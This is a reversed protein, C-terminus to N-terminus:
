SYPPYVFTYICIYLPPTFTSIHIKTVITTVLSSHNYRFPSITHIIASSLLRVNQLYNPQRTMSLGWQRPDVDDSRYYALVRQIAAAAASMSAKPGQTNDYIYDTVFTPEEPDADPGIAEVGNFNSAVQFVSNRYNPDSQLTTVSVYHRANSDACLFTIPVFKSTDTPFLSHHAPIAKRLDAITSETYKGCSYTTGRVHNVIEVAGDERTRFGKKLNEPQRFDSEVLGTTFQFWAQSAVAEAVPASSSSEASGVLRKLLSAMMIYLSVRDLHPSYPHSILPCLPTSPIFSSALTLDLAHTHSPRHFMM